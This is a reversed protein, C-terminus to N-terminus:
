YNRLAISIDAATVEAGLIDYALSSSVKALNKISEVEQSTLVGGTVLEDLTEQTEPDGLNLGKDSEIAKMAWKLAPVSVKAADLKELIVAATGSGLASMLGIANEFREILRIGSPRNLISAIMGDKVIYDEVYGMDNTIIYPHCEPTDLILQKLRIYDM